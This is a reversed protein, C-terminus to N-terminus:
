DVQGRQWPLPDAENLDLRYFHSIFSTSGHLKHYLATHDFVLGCKRIVAGSAPNAAAHNASFHRGGHKKYVHTIMARAAETAYGRNWSDRRLNYGFSWSDDEEMYYIGCSGILLGNDKREIGFDYDPQYPLSKLWDRVSDTSEHLPYSMYRNVLPDGCWEFAAEADGLTLPRLILRPTDLTTELHLM